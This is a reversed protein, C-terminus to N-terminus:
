KLKGIIKIQKRRAMENPNTGPEGEPVPMNHSKYFAQWYPTIQGSEDHFSMAIPTFLRKGERDVFSLQVLESCYIEENTPLYLRDYRRGLYSRANTLTATIDTQRLWKKKLRAHLYCGQENRLSDIHTVVVGRGVAEIVSDGNLVMAVHDIMGETVSTIANAQPSLHFLLDGAVLKRSSCGVLTLACTFHLLLKRM